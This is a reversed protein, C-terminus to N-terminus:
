NHILCSDVAVVILSLLYLMIHQTAAYQFFIFSYGYIRINVEPIDISYYVFNVQEIHECPDHLNPTEPGLIEGM